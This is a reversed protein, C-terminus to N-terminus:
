ALAKALRDAVFNLAPDDLRRRDRFLRIALPPQPLPPERAVLESRLQAFRSPLVALFDSRALVDIAPAFGPVVLGVHRKLGRDALVRDIPTETAGDVSVVLHPWALWSELTLADAAPHGRRMLVAMPQGGLEVAVVDRLPPPEAVGERLAEIADAGSRWPRFVAVIGPAEEALAAGLVPAVIGVLADSAMLRVTRHMRSLPVEEQPRVLRGIEAILEALPERLEEGRPTLRMGRGHREILPDGFL